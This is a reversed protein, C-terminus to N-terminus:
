WSVNLQRGYVVSGGSLRNEYALRRAEQALHRSLGLGFDGPFLLQFAFIVDYHLGIMDLPVNYDGVDALQNYVVGLNLVSPDIGACGFVNASTHRRVKGQHHNLSVRFALMRLPSIGAQRKRSCLAQLTRVDVVASLLADAPVVFWLPVVAESERVALAVFVLVVEVCIFGAHQRTSSLQCSGAAEGAKLPRALGVLGAPRVAAGELLALGKHVSAAAAILVVKLGFLGAFLHARERLVVVALRAFRSALHHGAEALAVKHDQPTHRLQRLLLLGAM